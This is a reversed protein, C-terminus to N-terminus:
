QNWTVTWINILCCSMLDFDFFWCWNLFLCFSLSSELIVFFYSWSWFLCFFFYGIFTAFGHVIKLVLIGGSFLLLSEFIVLRINILEFLKTWERYLTHDVLTNESVLEFLELSQIGIHFIDAILSKCLIGVGIKKTARNSTLLSFYLFLSLRLLWFTEKILLFEKFSRCIMNSNSVMNVQFIKLLFSSNNPIFNIRSVMSFLKFFWSRHFSNM